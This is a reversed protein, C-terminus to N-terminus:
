IEDQQLLVEDDLEALIMVQVELIVEIVENVELVEMELIHVVEDADDM